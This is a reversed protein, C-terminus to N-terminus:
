KKDGDRGADRGGGEGLQGVLDEVVKYNFETIKVNLLKQIQKGEMTNKIEYIYEM